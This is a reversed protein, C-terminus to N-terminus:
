RESAVKRGVIALDQQVFCLTSDVEHPSLGTAPGGDLEARVSEVIKERHAAQTLSFDMWEVLEEELDRTRASLVELGFLSFYAEFEGRDLCRTHSQDCLWEYYNYSAASSGNPVVIDVIIVHGGPRCVRAMESLVPKPDAFHHFAYRSSVIDFSEDDFPLNQVLGERLEVNAIGAEAIFQRGRELMAETADLGVVTSVHSSLARAFEGTGTAIDLAEAGESMPLAELMWALGAEDAYTEGDSSFGKAQASFASQNRELTDM